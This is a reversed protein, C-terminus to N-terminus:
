FKVFLFFSRDNDVVQFYFSPRDLWTQKAPVEPLGAPAGCRGNRFRECTERSSFDALALPSRKLVRLHSVPHWEEASQKTTPQGPGKCINWIFVFWLFPNHQDFVESFVHSDQCKLLVWRIAFAVLIMGQNPM